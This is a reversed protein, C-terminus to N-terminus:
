QNYPGAFPAVIEDPFLMRYIYEGSKAQHVKKSEGPTNPHLHYGNIVPWYAKNLDHILADNYAQEPSPTMDHAYSSGVDWVRNRPEQSMKAWKAAEALFPDLRSTDQPRFNPSYDYGVLDDITKISDRIDDWSYRPEYRATKIGLDNLFKEGYSM